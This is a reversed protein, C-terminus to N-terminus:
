SHNCKKRLCAQLLRCHSSESKVDSGAAFAEAQFHGTNTSAQRALGLQADPQRAGLAIGNIKSDFGETTGPLTNVGLSPGRGPSWM